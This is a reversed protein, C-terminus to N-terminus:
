VLRYFRCPHCEKLHRIIGAFTKWGTKRCGCYWTISVEKGDVSIVTM